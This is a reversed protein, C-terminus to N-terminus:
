SPLNLVISSGPKCATKVLSFLDDMMEIIKQCPKEMNTSLLDLNDYLFDVHPYRTIEEMEYLSPYLTIVALDFM